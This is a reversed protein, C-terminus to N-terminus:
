NVKVHVHDEHNATVSGRDGMYRWGEASRVPTWITRNWIVDFLDLAAANARLFEAIQQGVTADPIMIDIAKGDVHEGDNRYGGYSVVQPFQACVARYVADASSTLGAEIASGEACPATSLGGATVTSPETKPEAAPKAAPEVVPKKAVLYDANVWRSLGGYVVEAFGDREVGTVGIKTGVDLVELLNSKETPATWVNLSATMWMRDKAVPKEELTVRPASRSFDLTRATDDFLDVQAVKGPDAVFAQAGLNAAVAGIRPGTDRDSAASTNATTSALAVGVLTSTLLTAAGAPLM